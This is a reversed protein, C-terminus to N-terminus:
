AAAAAARRRPRSRDFGLDLAAALTAFTDLTPSKRGREIRSIEAQAVGARAALQQQTLHLEHRRTILASILRYKLQKAQLDRLADPGLARAEAEIETFLEDFSTTSVPAEKRATVLM